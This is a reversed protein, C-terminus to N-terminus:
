AVFIESQYWAIVVDLMEIEGLIILMNYIKRNLLFSNNCRSCYCVIFLRYRGGHLM